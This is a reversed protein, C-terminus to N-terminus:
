ADFWKTVAAAYEPSAFEAERDWEAVGGRLTRAATVARHSVTEGYLNMLVRNKVVPDAIHRDFQAAREARSQETAGAGGVPRVSSLLLARAPVGASRFSEFRVHGDLVVSCQLGSHWWLLVPPLSGDLALKRFAKVRGEDKENLARMPLYANTGSIGWEIEVIGSGAMQDADAEVLSFSMGARQFESVWENPAVIEAREIWWSGRGIPGGGSGGSLAEAFRFAWATWWGAEDPHSERVHRGEEATISKVVDFPGNILACLGWSQPNGAAWVRPQGHQSIRLKVPSAIETVITPAADKEADLALVVTSPLGDPANWRIM